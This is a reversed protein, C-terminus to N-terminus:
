FMNVLFIKFIRTGKKM